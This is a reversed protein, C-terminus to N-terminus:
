YGSFTGFVSSLLAVGSRYPNTAIYGGIDMYSVPGQYAAM